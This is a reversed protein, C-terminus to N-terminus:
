APQRPAEKKRSADPLFRRAPRSRECSWWWRCLASAFQFPFYLFDLDQRDGPMVLGPSKLEHEFIYQLPVPLV